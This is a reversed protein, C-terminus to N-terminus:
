MGTVMSSYLGYSGLGLVTLTSIASGAGNPVNGGGKPMNASAAAFASRLRQM